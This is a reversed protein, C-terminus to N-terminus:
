ITLVGKSYFQKGEFSLSAVERDANLLEGPVKRSLTGSIGGVPWDPTLM